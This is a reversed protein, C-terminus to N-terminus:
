QSRLFSVLFAPKAAQIKDRNRVLFREYYAKENRFEKWADGAAKSM